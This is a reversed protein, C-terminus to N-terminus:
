PVFLGQVAFLTNPSTSAIGDAGGDLLAVPRAGLDRAQGGIVAGPVCRTSADDLRRVDLRRRHGGHGLVPRDLRWTFTQVTGHDNSVLWRQRPRHHRLPARLALEGTYDGLDSRRRVDTM